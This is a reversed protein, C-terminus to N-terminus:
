AAVLRRRRLLHGADLHVRRVARQQPAAPRGRRDGHPVVRQLLHPRRRQEDPRRRLQLAAPAGVAGAGLLIGIALVNGSSWYPLVPELVVAFMALLVVATGCGTVWARAASEPLWTRLRSAVASRREPSWFRPGLQTVQHSSWALALVLLALATWCGTLVHHALWDVPWITQVTAACLIGLLSGGTGVVHIVRRPALLGIYWCAAILSPVLALWGALTGIDTLLSGPQRPSLVLALLSGILLLANLALAAGIHVCLCPSEALRLPEGYLRHRVRLWILAVGGLIALDTQILAVAWDYWPATIHLRWVIFSAALVLLSGCGLAWGEGHRQWALSACALGTLTLAIAASVHHEARFPTELAVLVAFGGFM